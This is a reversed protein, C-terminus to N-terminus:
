EGPGFDIESICIEALCVPYELHFNELVEPHVEGILGYIAGDASRVSAIRGNIFSPHEIPAYSCDEAGIERLLSDLIARGAAYGASEGM